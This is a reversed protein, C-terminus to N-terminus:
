VLGTGARPFVAEAEGYGEGIISAIFNGSAAFFCIRRGGGGEAQNRRM